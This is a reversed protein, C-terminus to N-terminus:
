VIRRTEDDGGIAKGYNFEGDYKIEAMCPYHLGALSGRLQPFTITKGDIKTVQM